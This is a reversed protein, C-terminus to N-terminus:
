INFNTGNISISKIDELNILANIPKGWVYGTYITKSDNWEINDRIM